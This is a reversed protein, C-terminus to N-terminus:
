SLLAELRRALDDYSTVGVVRDVEKGNHFYILTPIGMIGLRRATEPNADVDLKAIVARGDYEAALDEVSPAIIHCPACWEAWFDVVVPQESESVITQFEADIIHIPEPRPEDAM